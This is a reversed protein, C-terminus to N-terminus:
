HAFHLRTDLVEALMQCDAGIFCAKLGQTSLDLGLFVQFNINYNSSHTRWATATRAPSSLCLSLHCMKVESNHGNDTSTSYSMRALFETKLGLRHLELNLDHKLNSGIRCSPLCLLNILFTTAARATSLAVM